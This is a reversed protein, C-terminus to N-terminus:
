SLEPGRGVEHPKVREDAPSLRLIGVESLALELHQAVEDGALGVLRDDRLEDEAHPSHIAVHAVDEALEADGQAGLGGGLVRADARRFRTPSIVWPGHAALQTSQGIRPRGRGRVTANVTAM